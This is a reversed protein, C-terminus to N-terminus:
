KIKSWFGYAWCGLCFGLVSELMAASLLFVMVVQASGMWGMGHLLTAVVSMILGLRAAFMKPAADVMSPAFYRQRVQMALWRFMSWNCRYIRAYFDFSLLLLWAVSGMLLYGVALFMVFVGVIRAAREDIMEGSIPCSSM